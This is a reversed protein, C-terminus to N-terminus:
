VTKQGSEKEKDDQSGWDILEQELILDIHYSELVKTHVLQILDRIDKGTASGLNVIFNAHKNSVCADHVRTGKLGLDDILKGSPLEPSPNRFVSGASPYNLPQTALRRQLRDQILKLSEEKQGKPFVFSAETIVCNGQVKFFTNRYEHFIREKPLTKLTGEEDYFTVSELYKFTSVKYAEANGLICGGITGPIGTAWELGQLGHELIDCALKNIMVGAGVKVRTDEYVIENLLDLKVVVYPYEQDSLVVNSGNGLVFYPLHHNRAYKIFEGVQEANTPHLLYKTSTDIQYTNLKKLSAHEELVGFHELEEKM